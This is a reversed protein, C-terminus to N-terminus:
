YVFVDFLNVKHIFTCSIGESVHKSGFAFIIKNNRLVCPLGFSVYVPSNDLVSSDDECIAEDIKNKVDEYVNYSSIAIKNLDCNLFLKENFRILFRNDFVYSSRFNDDKKPTVTVFNRNERFISISKKNIKFLCRGITNIKKSIIKELIDDNINTSYKKGGINWVIRKIIEIQVNKNEAKLFPFDLIAYGFDSFLCKREDKLFSVADSEIERRNEGLTKINRYFDMLMKEDYTLIRKRCAVRKFIVCDNMPDNKWNINEGMLFNKLYEKTFHLIPRMLKIDNSISRIRSIGALGFNSSGSQKRMEFTELQDNWTHGTLVIGIFNRECFDVILKYRADRALNEIKNESLVAEESESRNWELIAHKIDLTKCFEQVFVAEENSEKRLKHDVTVCFIKAANRNAWRAAMMLLAMSDSGGSVAVCIANDSTQNKSVECENLLFQMESNFLDFALQKCIFDDAISYDHMM